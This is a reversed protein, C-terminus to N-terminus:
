KAEEFEAARQELKDENADFFDTTVVDRFKFKDLLKQTEAAIVSVGGGGVAKLGSIKEAHLKSEFEYVLKAARIQDSYLPPLEVMEGNVCQEQRANGMAIEYMHMHLVELDVSQRLVVKSKNKNLYMAVSAKERLEVSKNSAKRRWKKDSAYEMPYYGAAFVADCLSGGSLIYDCFRKEQENVESRFNKGRKTTVEIAM